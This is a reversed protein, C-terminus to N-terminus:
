FCGAVTCIKTFSRGLSDTGSYTTMGPMTQITENWNRGNSNGQIFTTNGFTSSNQNWQSGTISNSGQMYTSNGIRQVNYNNGYDDSCTRLSGTGYCAANAVGCIILASGVFLHTKM